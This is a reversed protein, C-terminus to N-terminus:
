SLEDLRGKYLFFEYIVFAMYSNKTGSLIIRRISESTAPNGTEEPYLLLFIAVGNELKGAFAKEVISEQM